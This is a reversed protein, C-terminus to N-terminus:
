RRCWALVEVDTVPEGVGADAPGPVGAAPVVRGAVDAPAAVRLPGPGVQASGVDAGAPGSAAPRVRAVRVARVLRELLVVLRQRVERAVGRARGAPGRVQLVLLVEQGLGRVPLRGFTLKM